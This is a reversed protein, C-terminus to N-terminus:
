EEKKEFARCQSCGGKGSYCDPPTGKAICDVINEATELLPEVISYSYPVVFEKAQQNAKFEYVFSIRDFPLRNEQCMWLYINGQRIHGSLPRHFDKWLGDIDLISKSTTKSEHTHQKIMNPAEFRLGGAGLSKLEVLINYETLAGDAHGSVPLSASKLTVERYRWDHSFDTTLDKSVGYSTGGITELKVWGTGVCSGSFYSGPKVSNSVYESCRSCRWDGWLKGTEAMWSQWKDHIRNGESFVNELTFSSKSAPMHGSTMRHYTARPCWDNKAMESPYIINNRHRTIEDDRRARDLLVRRVEPIVIGTATRLSSYDALRGDTKTVRRRGDTKTTRKRM